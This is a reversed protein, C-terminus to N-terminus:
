EEQKVKDMFRQWDIQKERWEEESECYLDFAFDDDFHCGDLQWFIPGPSQRLM